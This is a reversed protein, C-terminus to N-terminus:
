DGKPKHKIDSLLKEGIQAAKKSDFTGKPIESWCMSAEGIALMILEKWNNLIDLEVGYWVERRNNALEFADLCKM